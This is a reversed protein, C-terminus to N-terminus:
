LTKALFHDAYPSDSFADTPRYGAEAYLARAEALDDRVELRLTRLGARRAMDDLEVLLSRALGRGRAAPDIFIRTLEGLESSVVRVGGCGVVEGGDHVLVFFGGEGRLDDSPEDRLAAAVEDDTAPRGWYRGVIDSFFRRVSERGRPSRPDVLEFSPSGPAPLISV